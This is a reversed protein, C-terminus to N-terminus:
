VRDTQHCTKMPPKPDYTKWWWHGTKYKAYITFTSLGLVVFIVGALLPNSLVFALLLVFVLLGLALVIARTDEDLREYWNKSNSKPM